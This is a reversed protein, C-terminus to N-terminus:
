QNKGEHIHFEENSGDARKVTIIMGCTEFDVVGRREPHEKPLKLYDIHVKM